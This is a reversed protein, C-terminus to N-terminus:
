ALRIARWLLAQLTTGSGGTNTQANLYYVTSSSTVQVICSLTTTLGVGAAGTAYEIGLADASTVDASITSFAVSLYVTPAAGGRNITASMFWSGPAFGTASRLQIPVNTTFTLISGAPTDVFQGIKGAAVPYTYNPTLPCGLRTTSTASGLNITGTSGTGNLIQVNNSSNTGNGIHVAGTSNNGDGLHLVANRSAIAAVEVNNSASAHGILLTGGATTPDITSAVMGANFTQLAGWTQTNKASQVFEASAAQTNGTGIPLTPITPAVPFIVGSQTVPFTVFDDYLLEAEVNWASSNFQSTLPNPFPTEAM